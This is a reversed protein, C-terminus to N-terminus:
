SCFLKTTSCGSMTHYTRPDMGDPPSVLTNRRGVMAECSTCCLSHAARETPHLMYFIEQQWNSLIAWSTAASPKVDRKPQPQGGNVM